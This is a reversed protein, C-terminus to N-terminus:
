PVVFVQACNPIKSMKTVSKLEKIQKADPQLSFINLETKGTQWM